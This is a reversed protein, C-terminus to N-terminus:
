LTYTFGSAPSYHIDMYSKYMREGDKGIQNVLDRVENKYAEGRVWVRHDDSMEYFWDWGEMKERLQSMLEQHKEWAEKDKTKEGNVTYEIDM